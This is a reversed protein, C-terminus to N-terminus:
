EVILNYKKHNELSNGTTNLTEVCLNDGKVNEFQSCFTITLITFIYNLIIKM